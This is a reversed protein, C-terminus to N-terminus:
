CRWELPALVNKLKIATDALKYVSSNTVSAAWDVQPQIHRKALLISGHGNRSDPNFFFSTDRHHEFDEQRVDHDPNVEAHRHTFARTSDVQELPIKM